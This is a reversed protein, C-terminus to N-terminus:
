KIEGLTERIAELQGLAQGIRADLQNIIDDKQDIETLLGYAWELVDKDVQGSDILWKIRSEKQSGM